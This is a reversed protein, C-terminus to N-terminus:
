GSLCILQAISEQEAVALRKSENERNSPGPLCALGSAFAAM